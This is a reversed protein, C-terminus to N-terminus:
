GPRSHHDHQYAELVARTDADPDSNVFEKGLLDAFDDLSSSLLGAAFRVDARASGATADALDAAQCIWAPLSTVVDDWFYYSHPYQTLDIRVQGVDAALGSM